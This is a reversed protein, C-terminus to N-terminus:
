IARSRWCRQSLLCRARWVGHGSKQGHAYRRAWVVLRQRSRRRRVSQPQRHEGEVHARLGQRWVPDVGEASVRLVFRHRRQRPQRTSTWKGTEVNISSASWGSRRAAITSRSWRASPRTTICRSAPSSASRASSWCYRASRRRIADGDRAGRRDQPQRLRVAHRDALQVGAVPTQGPGRGAGAIAQRRHTSLQEAPRGAHPHHDRFEQRLHGQRVVLEQRDARADRRSARHTGDPDAHRARGGSDHVAVHWVLGQLGQEAAATRRTGMRVPSLGAMRASIGRPGQRGDRSKACGDLSSQARCCRTAPRVRASSRM